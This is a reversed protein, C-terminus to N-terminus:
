YIRETYNGYKLLKIRIREKRTEGIINDFKYKGFGKISFDCGQKLLADPLFVSHSSVKFDGNEILRKAQTRSFGTISAVFCDARFSSVIIIKEEYNLELDVYEEKDVTELSIKASGCSLFSDFLHISIDTKNWLPFYANSRDTVLLDGFYKRDIGLSMLAGMYDRHSPLHFKDPIARIYTIEEEFLVYDGVTLFARKSEIRPCFFNYDEFVNERFFTKAYEQLIEDVFGITTSVGTARYRKVAGNLRSILSDRENFNFSNKM